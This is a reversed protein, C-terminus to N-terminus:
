VYEVFYIKLLSLFDEFLLYKKTKVYSQSYLCVEYLCTHSRLLTHVITIDSRYTVYKKSMQSKHIDM